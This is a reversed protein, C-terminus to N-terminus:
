DMFVMENEEADHVWRGPESQFNGTETALRLIDTKNDPHARSIWAHVSDTFRQTFLEYHQGCGHSASLELEALEASLEDSDLPTNERHHQQQVTRLLQELRALRAPALEDLFRLERNAEIVKKEIFVSLTLKAERTRQDITLPFQYM